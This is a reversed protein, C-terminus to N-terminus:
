KNDKHIIQIIKKPIRKFKGYCLRLTGLVYGIKSVRFSMGENLADKCPNCHGCTYGFVPRHCFWTKLIINELGISKMYEVEELKTM